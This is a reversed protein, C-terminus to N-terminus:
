GFTEADISRRGILELLLQHSEQLSRCAVGSRGVPRCDPVMAVMEFGLTAVAVRIPMDSCM